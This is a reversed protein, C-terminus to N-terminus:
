RQKEPQGADPVGAARAAVWRASDEVQHILPTPLIGFILTIALCVAGVFRLSGATAVDADKGERLYMAVVIRLYYFMSVASMLVAIIALWGFGSQIAAAFLYYKGIFGATPPIGGLSLLFMVMAFAWFPSRTHLGQFDDIQEGAYEHQQLMLVTAWIGLTAALYVVTYVLVGRMGMESMAIIGLLLYGAHGISSYALMRKINDQTIAALNGVIM